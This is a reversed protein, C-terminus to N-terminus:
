PVPHSVLRVSCHEAYHDFDKDITMLPADNEIALALILFDIHSGQVGRRRCRNFLQAAREHTQQSPELDPFPQLLIRLREYQEEHKLGSLLEQRIVGTMAARSDKILEELSSVTHRQSNSLAGNKKRLALSWVSTDVLIM